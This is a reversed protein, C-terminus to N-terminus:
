TRNVVFSSELFKIRGKSNITTKDFPFSNVYETNEVPKHKFIFAAEVRERYTSEVPTYSYCLQNGNRVHKNWDELKNHTAIRTNVNGSEGIYLLKHITVTKEKVNHTCEYVCYVGSLKPLGDKNPERWYGDFEQNFNQEAM